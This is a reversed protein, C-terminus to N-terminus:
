FRTTDDYSALRPDVGRAIVTGARNKLDQHFLGVLSAGRLNTTKDLRVEQFVAEDLVAKEFDAGLLNAGLFKTRKCTAQRFSSGRLDAGEFSAGVLVAGDFNCDRVDANQFFCGRLKAKRFSAGTLTKLIVNGGGSVEDFRARGLDCNVLNMGLEAYSFDCEHFDLEHVGGNLSAGRLDRGNPVEDRFPLGDLMAFAEASSRGHKPMQLGFFFENIRELITKGPEQKWREVLERKSAM